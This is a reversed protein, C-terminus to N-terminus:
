CNKVKEVLHVQYSMYLCQRRIKLLLQVLQDPFIIKQYFAATHAKHLSQHHFSARDSRDYLFCQLAAKDNKRGARVHDAQYRRKHNRFLIDVLHDPSQFGGESRGNLFLQKMRLIHDAFCFSPNCFDYFCESAEAHLVELSIFIIHFHSRGTSLLGM